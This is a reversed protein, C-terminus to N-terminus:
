RNTLRGRNLYLEALPNNSKLIVGEGTGLDNSDENVRTQVSYNFDADGKVQLYRFSKNNVPTLPIVLGLAVFQADTNKYQLTLAYDGFWMRSDIRFGTDEVFFQGVSATLQLDRDANYYTYQALAQNRERDQDNKHQFRGGIFGLGHSGGPSLILTENMVGNYDLAYRGAHVSTYLQPHLRFTQQLEAEVLATRQRSDYFVGGEEFDDTRYIEADYRASALAGPWLSFALKSSVAVSADWVGYETAVGSSISPSLTLRPKWSPGYGGQFDWDSKKWELAGYQSFEGSAFGGYTNVGLTRTVVPIGQNLLTLEIAKHNMAQSQAKQAVDTISDREDRNFVNNEWQVYLTGDRSATRVRDYGADVLQQGLNEAARGNEHSVNGADSNIVGRTIREPKVRTLSHAPQPESLELQPVIRLQSPKSRANGFPVSIGISTFHRGNNTDGEDYALVKAKLQMGGPLWDAPTTASFGGRFDVSDYEAIMSLWPLPRYSVAAFPGDLYRAAEKTDGYGVALELPGLQKGAVVYVSKFNSTEGGLDQAGIALTFWEPPLFPAQAKLNASLDRIGGCGTTFCNSQTEAWTVRGGIEIYRLAGFLGSVNQYHGYRGNVFGQDSWQVDAQGHNLVTASPVNLFGSYGPFALDRPNAEASTSVGFFAGFVLASTCYKSTM